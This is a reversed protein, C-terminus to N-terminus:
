KFHKQSEVLSKLKLRKVHLFHKAHWRYVIGHCLWLVVSVTAVVCNLNWGFEEPADCRKENCNIIPFIWFLHKLRPRNPHSLRNFMKFISANQKAVKARLEADREILEAWGERRWSGSPQRSAANLLYDLSIILQVCGLQMLDDFCVTVAMCRVPKERELSSFPKFKVSFLIERM